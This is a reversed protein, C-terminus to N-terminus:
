IMICENLYHTINKDIFLNPKDKRYWSFNQWWHQIKAKVWEEWLYCYKWLYDETDACLGKVKWTAKSPRTGDENQPWQFLSQNNKSQISLWFDLFYIVYSVILVLSFEWGGFSDFLFHVLRCVVHLLSSVFCINWQTCVITRWQYIWLLKLTTQITM